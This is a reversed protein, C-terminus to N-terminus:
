DAAAQTTDLFGLDHLQQPVALRVLDHKGKAVTDVVYLHHFFSVQGDAHVAM